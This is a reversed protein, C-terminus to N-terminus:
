ADKYYLSKFSPQRFGGSKTRNMFKVTCMLKPEIWITERESIDQFDYYYKNKNAAQTATITKYADNSKYLDVHGIYNYHGDVLEALTLSTKPTDTKDYGCIYFEADQLNKIKIWSNTEKGYIYKSDKLKAVIGELDNEITLDLLPKGIGSIYKSIAISDNPILVDELAKKREILPLRNIEKDKLYVIDYAVFSVPYQEAALHIRFTNTMLSRRQIREFEPRGNVMVVVEGDIICKHKVQKHLEGLEPYLRSVDKNRKNRINTDSGLYALARIGDFKVEYIYDDSDFAESKSVGILMPRVGRSDFIDGM